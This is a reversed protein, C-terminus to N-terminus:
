AAPCSVDSCASKPSQAALWDAYGLLTAEGAVASMWARRPDGPFTTPGTEIQGNAMWPAPEIRRFWDALSPIRGQCDERVHQEGIWRVPVSRGAANTLTLGFAREAEFIGQSHHRLARHTFFGMHAKSADFWDHVAQYDAPDGGFRRASSEAHHLPHAM